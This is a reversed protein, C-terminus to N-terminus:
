FGRRQRARVACAGAARGPRGGGDPCRVGPTCGAGARQIELSIHVQREPQRQCLADFVGAAVTSLDVEAPAIASRSVRSLALIDATLQEMRATGLLIRDFMRQEDAGLRGELRRALLSTFGNITTLPTKLDHSVSYAFSELEANLTQLQATRDRVREELTEGLRAIERDRRLRVLEAQCRSAFIQMLADRDQSVQLPAKWLANLIGIPTGDADRLSVGLYARYQGEALFHDDPFEAAVNDNYTCSASWETAVACPTGALPYTINDVIQGGMLLALSTISAHQVPDLEGVMVLDADIARGLHQVLSRFFAAGTEGSVGRAVNLLQTERQKQATANIISCLICEEGDIDILTAWVRCDILQGHRNRLPTEYGDVRGQKRLLDVFRARHAESPWGGTDVSRRGVLKEPKVSLVSLDASNVEVFTGDSVRSITMTMPSSSFAKYFREQSRRLQNESAERRVLESHATDLAEQLMSRMTHVGVGVVLLTATYTLWVNLSMTYAPQALWGHIEAWALLGFMAVATAVAAVLGRREMFMGGGAIAAVVALTGSSRLSGYLWAEVGAAAMVSFVALNAAWDLRGRRQLAYAASLALGMCAVTVLSMRVNRDSLDGNVLLMVFLVVMVAVSLQMVLAFTRHRLSAPM